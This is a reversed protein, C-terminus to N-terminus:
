NDKSNYQLEFEEKIKLLVMIMIKLLDFYDRAQSNEDKSYTGHAYRNRLDLGNSFEAKNLMYNLYNSEPRSFLRSATVIDGNSILEEIVDRFEDCHKLCLVDNDYLNIGRETLAASILASPELM